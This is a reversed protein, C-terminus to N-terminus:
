YTAALAVMEWHLVSDGTTTHAGLLKGEWKARRHYASGRMFSRAGIRMQLIESPGTSNTLKGHDSPKNKPFPDNESCYPTLLSPNPNNTIATQNMTLGENLAMLLRLRLSPPPAVRIRKNPLREDVVRRTACNM